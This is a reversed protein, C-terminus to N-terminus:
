YEFTLYHNSKNLESGRKVNLTILCLFLTLDLCILRLKNGRSKKKVIPHLPNNKSITEVFAMSCLSHGNRTEIKHGRNRTRKNIGGLQRLGSEGEKRREEESFTQTKTKIEAVDIM